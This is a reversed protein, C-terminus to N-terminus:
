LPRRSRGAAHSYRLRRKSWDAEQAYANTRAEGLLRPSSITGASRTHSSTHRTKLFPDKITGPFDSLTTCPRLQQGQVLRLLRSGECFNTDEPICMLHDAGMGLPM